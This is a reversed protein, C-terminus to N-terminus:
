QKLTELEGYKYNNGLQFNSNGREMTVNKFVITHVFSNPAGGTTTSVEIVGGIKGLWEEKVTPLQPDEDQCFYNPTVVGNEYLHYVLKNKLLGIEGTRPQDIPTVENAILNPDIELTLSESDNFVYVFNKNDCINLVQEFDLKLPTITKLYDGFGFTEYFQTTGDGKAFTINKFIINHKYGTIRTSNDTDDATKVMETTIEIIGSSANWQTQVNPSAPPILDCVNASTVKGDYFNYVVQNKSNINLITPAGEETADDKFTEEPVNLILSEGEKLKFLLNNDPCTSTAVEDFNITDVILDGDDCGAFAIVCSLIGIFRKM